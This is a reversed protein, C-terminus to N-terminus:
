AAAQAHQQRSRAAAPACHGQNRAQHTHAHRSACVCECIGPWDCATCWGGEMRNGVSPMGSGQQWGSTSGAAPVSAASPRHTPVTSAPSARNAQPMRGRSSHAVVPREGRATALCKACARNIANPVLLLAADRGRAMCTCSPHPTTPQSPPPPCSPHLEAIHCPQQSIRGDLPQGWM